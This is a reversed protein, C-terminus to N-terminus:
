TTTFADEHIEGRRRMTKKLVGYKDRM